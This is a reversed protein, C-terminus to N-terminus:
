QRFLALFKLWYCGIIKVNPMCFAGECAQTIRSETSFIDLCMLLLCSFMALRCYLLFFFHDLVYRQFVSSYAVRYLSIVDELKDYYSRNSLFSKISKATSIGIEFTSLNLCFFRHCISDFAKGFTLFIIEVTNGDEIQKIEREEIILLNTPCSQQQMFGSQSKPIVSTLHFHLM